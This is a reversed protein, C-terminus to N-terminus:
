LLKSQYDEMTEKEVIKMIQKVLSIEYEIAVLSHQLEELQSNYYELEQQKVRRFKLFKKIDVVNTKQTEM